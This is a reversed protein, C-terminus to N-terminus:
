EEGPMVMGEMWPAGAAMLAREMRPIEEEYLKKVKPLMETIEEQALSVSKKHMETPGYTSNMGRYGIFMRSRINPPNKEGIEDKSPSGSVMMDMENMKQKLAHLQVALDGIDGNTRSIASEMNKVRKKSEDFMYTALSIDKSLDNMKKRFAAMEQPSAGKLAGERLPVVEFESPGDLVTTEGNVM